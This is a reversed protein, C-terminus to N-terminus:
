RLPWRAKYSRHCWLRHAGATIGLASMIQFIYSLGVTQWLVHGNVIRYLATSAFLHLITLLLVNRWIIERWHFFHPREAKEPTVCPVKDACLKAMKQDVIQRIFYSFCIM